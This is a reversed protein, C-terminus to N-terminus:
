QSTSRGKRLLRMLRPADGAEATSAGGPGGHLPAGARGSKVSWQKASSVLTVYENDLPATPCAALTCAFRDSVAITDAEAKYTGNCRNCDAQLPLGGEAEFVATFRASSPPRTM